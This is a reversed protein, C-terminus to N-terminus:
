RSGEPLMESSNFYLDPDTTENSAFHLPKLVKIVVRRNLSQNDPIPNGDKDKNPAIPRTDGFGVSILQKGQFGYFQFREVVSASRASSIEWNSRYVGNPSVPSNDTHGEVIIRYNPNKSKILSIMADINKIFDKKLTTSGPDFMVSSSFVIELAGDKIKTSVENKLNPHGGIDTGLTEIGRKEGEIKSPVFHKSVEESKKEFTVPDFNAFSTLIVFFCFLLTMMDAYSVIWPGEEVHEDHEQSHKKEKLPHKPLTEKQNVM